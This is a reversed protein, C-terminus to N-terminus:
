DLNWNRVELIRSSIGGSSIEERQCSDHRVQHFSFPVFKRARTWPWLLLYNESRCGCKMSDGVRSHNKANRSNEMSASDGYAILAIPYRFSRYFTSKRRECVIRHRLESSRNGPLQPETSLNALKDNPGCICKCNLHTRQHTAVIETTPLAM